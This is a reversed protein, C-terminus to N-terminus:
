KHPLSLIYHELIVISSPPLFASLMASDRQGMTNVFDSNRLSLDSLTLPFISHMQLARLSPVWADIWFKILKGNGIGTKDLNNCLSQALMGTQMVYTPLAQVVSKSLTLRGVFSLNYAKYHSLRQSTKDLINQFTQKTVQNHFLHVGLHKGLDDTRQFGM